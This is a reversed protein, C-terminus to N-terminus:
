RSVGPWAGPDRDREIVAVWLGHGLPAGTERDWHRAIRAAAELTFGAKLLHLMRAVVAVETAPYDWPNGHQHLRDPEVFGHRRWGDLRAYTIGTEATVDRIKM